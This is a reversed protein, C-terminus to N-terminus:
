PVTIPTGQRPRSGPAPALPNPRCLDAIKMGVAGTLMLGVMPLVAGGSIWAILFGSSSGILFQMTGLLASASGAHAAHRTLAGVTATPGIFGTLGQAAALLAGMALPTSRHMVAMLVLASTLVLYGATTVHLSRNLGLWRTLYV